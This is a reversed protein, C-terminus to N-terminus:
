RSMQSIALLLLSAARMSLSSLVSCLRSTPCVTEDGQM